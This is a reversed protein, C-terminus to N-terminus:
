EKKLRDELEKKLEDNSFKSLNDKVRDATEKIVNTTLEALAADSLKSIDLPPISNGRVKSRLDGQFERFSPGIPEPEEYIFIGYILFVILFIAFLIGMIAVFASVWDPANSKGFPLIM